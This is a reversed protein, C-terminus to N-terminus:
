LAASVLPRLVLLVLLIQVIAVTTSMLLSTAGGLVVVVLLGLDVAVAVVTSVADVRAAVTAFAM